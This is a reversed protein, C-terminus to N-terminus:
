SRLVNSRKCLWRPVGVRVGLMRGAWVRGGRAQAVVLAMQLAFTALAAMGAAAHLWASRCDGNDPLGVLAGEALALVAMYWGEQALFLTRGFLEWKLRLMRRPVPHLIVAPPARLVLVAFPTGWPDPHTAPAGWLERVYYNARLRGSGAHASKRAAHTGGGGLAGGEASAAHWMHGDLLDDLLAPCLSCLEGVVDPHAAWLRERGCYYASTDARIALLDRLLVRAMDVKGDRLAWGLPSGGGAHGVSAAAAAAATDGGARTVLRTAWEARRGRPALALVRRLEDADGSVLALAVLGSGAALGDEM